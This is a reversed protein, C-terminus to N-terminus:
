SISESKKWDNSFTFVMKLKCVTSHCTAPQTHGAAMTKGSGTKSRETM